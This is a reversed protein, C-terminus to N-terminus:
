DRKRSKSSLEESRENTKCVNGINVETAIRIAEVRSPRAQLEQPSTMVDM